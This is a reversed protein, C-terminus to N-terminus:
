IPMDIERPEIRYKIINEGKPLLKMKLLGIYNEDVEFVANSEVIQGGFTNFEAEIDLINDTLNIFKNTFLNDDIDREIKILDEIDGIEFEIEEDPLYLSFNDQGLLHVHGNIDKFHVSTAGPILINGLNNDENNIFFICEKAINSDYKALIKKKVPIKLSIFSIIPNNDSSINYKGDLSFIINQNQHNYVLQLDVNNYQFNCNNKISVWGNMLINNESPDYLFNYFTEFEIKYTKYSFDVECNKHDSLSTIELILEKKNENDILFYNKVSIDDCKLFNLIISKTDISDPIQDIKITNNGKKFDSLFITNILAFNQPCLTMRM